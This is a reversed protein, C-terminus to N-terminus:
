TLKVRPRETLEPLVRNLWLFPLRIILFTLIFFIIFLLSGLRFKYWYVDSYGLSSFWLSDIYINIIQSGFLFVALLIVVTVILWTRRKRPPNIDIINDNFFPDDQM